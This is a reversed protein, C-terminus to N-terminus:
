LVLVLRGHEKDSTKFNLTELKVYHEYLIDKTLPSYFHTPLEGDLYYHREVIETNPPYKQLQTILDSVKM